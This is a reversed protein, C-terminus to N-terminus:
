SAPKQGTAPKQEMANLKEVVKETMDNDKRIYPIAPNDADFVVDYGGEEALIEIVKQVAYTIQSEKNIKSQMLRDQAEAQHANIAVKKQECKARQAQIEAEIKKKAEENLVPNNSKGVLEELKKEAEVYDAYMSALENQAAQVQAAMEDNAKKVQAYDSTVKRSSFSGIVSRPASSQTETSQPKGDAANKPEIAFLRIMAVVVLSMFIVLKKM